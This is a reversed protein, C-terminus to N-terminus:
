GDCQKCDCILPYIIKKKWFFFLFSPPEATTHAHMIFVHVPPADNAHSSLIKTNNSTLISRPGDNFHPLVSPPATYVRCPRRPMPSKWEFRLKRIWLPMLFHRRTGATYHYSASMRHCRWNLDIEPRDYWLVRNGVRPKVRNGGHLM